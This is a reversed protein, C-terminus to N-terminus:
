TRAFGAQYIKHLIDVDLQNALKVAEDSMSLTAKNGFMAFSQQFFLSIDTADNSIIEEEEVDYLIPLTKRANKADPPYLQSICIMTGDEGPIEGDRPEWPLSHLHFLAITM